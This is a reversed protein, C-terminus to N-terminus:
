NLLALGLNLYAALTVWIIYPIMLYAAPKSVKYFLITTLILLALLALLWFFAFFYLEFNFFLITWFFNFALQLTYIQLALKIENQDKQSTFVLYSALGMFTYLITWVLPFLWGPPALPPKTLRDFMAMSERSILSAVGGVLLPIAVFFILTKWNIKLIIVEGGFYASRLFLIGFICSSESRM